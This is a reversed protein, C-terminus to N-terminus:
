YDYVTQVEKIVLGVLDQIKSIPHFIAGLSILEKFHPSNLDSKHGGIFFCVLKNGMNLLELIDPYAIEWNQIEFDTILLVVSNREGKRCMQRIERTPLQTGMGQYKLLIDEILRPETTWNQNSSFDSFNIAAIKIGKKIGYHLAAFSAVLALHYSSKNKKGSSVTWEMSGSSDIVIMMDPLRKDIEIGPGERYIWKRTTINPIIKPSVLMSQLIDLKEIPDGIIWPEIGIPISGTPRKSVIKFEVLNKSLGRYYTAIVDRNPIFGMVQNVRIFEELTMENALEEANKVDESDPEKKNWKNTNQPNKPGVKIELPNGSTVQVDLPILVPFQASESGPVTPVDSYEGIKVKITAKPFDEEIIGKLLKAIAYIKKEWVSENEFDHLIISSIQKALPTIEEYEEKSLNLNLDWMCEYCKILIKYFKSHQPNEKSKGVSDSMKMTERLQFVMEKPKKQYLKYDVVLDAFFNVVIPSLRYHIHKLTAKILRANTLADYPCVIYHSIEHLSLVNYFDFLQDKFLLTPANSLNLITKWTDLEIFFGILKSKDFVFSPDPIAPTHFHSIAKDWAEKGILLSSEDTESLCIDIKGNFYDDIETYEIFIVDKGYNVPKKKTGKERTPYWRRKGKSRGLQPLFLPRKRDNESM